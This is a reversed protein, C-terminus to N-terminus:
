KYHINIWVDATVPRCMPPPRKEEGSVGYQGCHIKGDQVGTKRIVVVKEVVYLLFAVV